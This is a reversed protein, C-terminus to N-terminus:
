SKSVHALMETDKHAPFATHLSKQYDTLIGWRARCRRTLYTLEGRLIYPQLSEQVTFVTFLRESYDLTFITM